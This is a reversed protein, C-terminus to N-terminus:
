VNISQLEHEASFESHLYQYENNSSIYSKLSSYLQEPTLSTTLSVQEELPSALRHKMIKNVIDTSVESNKSIILLGSENHIDQNALVQNTKNIKGLRRSYEDPLFRDYDM